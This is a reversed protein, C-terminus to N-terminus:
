DNIFEGITKHMVSIIRDSILSNTLVTATDGFKVVGIKSNTPLNNILEKSVTLRTNNQDNNAGVPGMSRSDDVVFVIEVNSKVDQWTDKWEFARQFKRRSILIYTSFHTVDTSAVNGNISTALEELVGEEENYYYIVPDFNETGILSNDFEFNITASDFEGDVYFDYAQGLYGPMQEPFLLDNEVPDIRLTEVQAGSLQIEVSAVVSDENESTINMDFSTQAVLPDTGLEVEKGDSVEDGDTDSLTPDTNYTDIELNDNLGDGDTDALSASLSNELEYINTLTDGDFDEYADCVGNDDTDFKLPDYGLMATEQYDTLGDNDTDANNLDTGICSEYDDLLGDSDTDTVTDFWVAYLKIDTIVATNEFDFYSSIDITNADSFWGILQYGEREAVTPSTAKEGILVSQTEPTTGGEYNIDFEVDFYESGAVIRSLLNVDNTDVVGDSNIDIKTEDLEVKGNLYLKLMIVDKSNVIGDDNVDGLKSSTQAGFVILSTFILVVTLFVSLVRKISNKM